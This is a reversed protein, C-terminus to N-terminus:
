WFASNPGTVNPARYVPVTRAARNNTASGPYSLSGAPSGCPSQRHSEADSFRSVHQFADTKRHRTGGAPQEDGGMDSRGDPSQGRLAEEEDHHNYARDGEIEADVRRLQCEM